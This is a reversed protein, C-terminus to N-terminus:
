FLTWFIPSMELACLYSFGLYWPTTSKKIYNVGSIIIGFLYLMMYILSITNFVRGSFIQDNQGWVLLWILIPLMILVASIYKFRIRWCEHHLDQLDWIKGSLFQFTYQILATIIPISIYIWSSHINIKSISEPTKFESFFTLYIGISFTIFALNILWLYKPEKHLKTIPLFYNRWLKNEFTNKKFYFALFFTSLIALWFIFDNYEIKSNGIFNPPLINQLFMCNLRM